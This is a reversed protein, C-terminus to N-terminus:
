TVVRARRAQRAARTRRSPGRDRGSSRRLRRRRRRSVSGGAGRRTKPRWAATLPRRRHGRMGPRLASTGAQAPEDRPRKTGAAVADGPVAQRHRVSSYRRAQSSTKTAVVVPVRPTAAQEGRGLQYFKFAANVKDSANIILTPDNVVSGPGAPAAGLEPITRIKCLAYLGDADPERSLGDAFQHGDVFALASGGKASIKLM